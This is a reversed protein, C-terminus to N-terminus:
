QKPMLCAVDYVGKMCLVAAAACVRRVQRVAHKAIAALQREAAFAAFLKFCSLQRGQRQGVVHPCPIGRLPQYLLVDGHHLGDTRARTNRREDAQGHLRAVLVVNPLLASFSFREICCRLHGSMAKSSAAVGKCEWERQFFQEFCQIVVGRPDVVELWQLQWPNPILKSLHRANQQLGVFLSCGVLLLDLGQDVLGHHTSLRSCGFSNDSRLVYM